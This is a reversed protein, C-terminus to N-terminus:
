LFISTGVLHGNRTFFVAKEIFDIGAGIIEGVQWPPIKEVVEGEGEVEMRQQAKIPTGLEDVDDQIDTFDQSEHYLGGDDGHFGYSNRGWGLHYLVIL